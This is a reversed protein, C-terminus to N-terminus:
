SPGGPRGDERRVEVTVGEDETGEAPQKEVVLRNIAADDV